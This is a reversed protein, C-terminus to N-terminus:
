APTYIGVLNAQSYGSIKVQDSQNGGLVLIRGNQTGCVFGVHGSQSNTGRNFVVIDGYEINDKKRFSPSTTFSKAFGTVGKISVGANKLCWAAFAACWPTEDGSGIGVTKLYEMIKPNHQSGKIEKTGIEGRAIQLWKPGDGKPTFDGPVGNNNDNVNNSGKSVIDTPSGTGELTNVSGLVFPMQQDKGDLWIGFVTSGEMLGNPTTGVGSLSANTAPMLIQAWPLLNTPILTKDETHSGFVRVRVRGLQIPDARDEVVGFWFQPDTGFYNPLYQQKV